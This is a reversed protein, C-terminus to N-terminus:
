RCETIKTGVSGGVTQAGSSQDGVCFDRIFLLQWVRIAYYASSDCILLMFNRTLLFLRMFSNWKLVVLSM